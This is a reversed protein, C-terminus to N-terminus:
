GPASHHWALFACRKLSPHSPQLGGELRQSPVHFLGSDFGCYPTGPTACSPGPAELPPGPVPFPPGSPRAEVPLNEFARLLCCLAFWCGLTSSDGLSPPAPPLESSQRPLCRFTWVGGLLAIISPGGGPRPNRLAPFRAVAGAVAGAVVVKIQRALM